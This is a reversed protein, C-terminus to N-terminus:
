LILDIGYTCVYTCVTCNLIDDEDDSIDSDFIDLSIECELEAGSERSNSHFENLVHPMSCLNPFHKGAVHWIDAMISESETTIAKRM